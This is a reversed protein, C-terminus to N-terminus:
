AKKLIRTALRRLEEDSLDEIPKDDINKVTATSEATHLLPLIKALKAILDAREGLDTTADVANLLEVCQNYLRSLLAAFSRDSTSKLTQKLHGQSAGPHGLNSAESSVSVETSNLLSEATQATKLAEQEELFAGFRKRPIYGRGM